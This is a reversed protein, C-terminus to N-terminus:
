HGAAFLARMFGDGALQGYAGYAPCTAEDYTTVEDPPVGPARIAFPVPTRTHQRLLVPVPHDPLVAAVLDDASRCEFFRGLLRRDFAEITRIKLDLDGLHGCEDTAEFHVFVFDVRDLAAAAAEAKGEYNTDIWGTAGPVSIIEMGTLRGIGNIVDVASIMAGSVGYKEQFSPMTPWHGGSWPWILNALGKGAAQRQRNVPLQELFEQSRLTLDNLLDATARAGTNAPDLPKLLLKEAREGQSSDPKAYQVAPDFQEGTLIILNRYSVGAVFRVQPSGFEAQLADIITHSAQNEIHDASYDQIIGDRVTILNCRFAIQNDALHIGSQGSRHPRSRHPLHAPRLGARQSQRHRQLHGSRTAPDTIHWM